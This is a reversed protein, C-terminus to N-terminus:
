SGRWTRSSAVTLSGGQTGCPLRARAVPRLGARLPRTLPLHVASQKPPARSSAGPGSAEPLSETLVTSGWGGTITPHGVEGKVALPTGLTKLIHHALIVHHSGQGPGQPFSPHGVSVQEGAGPTSSLGGHGPKQGFPEVTLLPHGGLGAVAALRADPDGIARGQIHHLDVTGGVTADVLHPLQAVPHAVGGSSGAALDVDDVLHVHEGVLREVREQLNQLFRGPMDGEDEGGGLGMAHGRRHHGAALAEVEPPEGRRLQGAVELPHGLRFPHSGLLLGQFEDGPM